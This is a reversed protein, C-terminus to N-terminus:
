FLYFAIVNTPFYFSHQYYCLTRSEEQLLWKLTWGRFAKQWRSGRGDYFVIGFKQQDIKGWKATMLWSIISIPSHLPINEYLHDDWPSMGNGLRFYLKSTKDTKKGWKKYSLICNLTRILWNQGVKGGTMGYSNISISSHLPINEYSHWKVTCYCPM